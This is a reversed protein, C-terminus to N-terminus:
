ENPRRRSQHKRYEDYRMAKASSSDYIGPDMMEGHGELIKAEQALEEARESGPAMSRLETAADRLLQKAGDFDGGQARKRAEKQASAAKLILVEEIVENDPGAKTAEDSTVMNVTVPITLEHAEIGEGVGVYRVIVDAVKAVGLGAIEPINLQFIVRRTEDGYADGLAIQVGGVVQTQPYENLIGLLKVDETPRIEVSVNQAVLAAIDEFEQGFVGPADEPSGIYYANGGGSLAMATLLEEDFGDGFGITTTSVGEGRAKEAMGVLSPHDTIGVNALGDTLLLVKSVGGQARRAEEIGKLWGGSLNTTGGPPIQHVAHILEEPTHTGLSSVLSVEDDYAILAVQDKAELRRFLYEAARKTHELKEGAMSGSHDIVLALRLPQRESKGPAQPAVLELMGHVNHEGEVALLQHDFRVTAKM